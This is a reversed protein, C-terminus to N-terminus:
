QKGAGKGIDRQRELVLGPIGLSTDAGLKRLQEATEPWEQWQTGQKAGEAIRFPTRQQFDQANINAGHEVLFQIVENLGRFAAGHLATFNAENVATVEAGAEVLTKVAEEADPSRDGRPKLPQSTAHGLGAAVMLPTTQDDTTLRHDAGAALLVRIIDSTGQVRDAEFGVNSGGNTSFAALWLPTAGRLDGTGVASLEFAGRKPTALYSQGVASTSIRGNPDAGHALLAKVLTLRRNVDLHTLRRLRNAGRLRLWDRLWIDVNGAATHLAPVGYIKANADAGQELLFLAFADHRSIIALPLAHTGDSGTENVGVGAALLVRGMEIDGNRASHLLPTFGRKSNQHVDAGNEILTQVIDLHRDAVDLHREAVAWMLATYKTERTAANVNAGHALLAKVANVDGTRAATMLPTVGNTQVANANAGAMLLMEVMAVNRNECAQMLPTVGHDDAANANAHARLLLDVTELDDWHAAWLLATTGDPRATNVDVHQRLLARVAARDQDAVANVLRLDPGAATALSAVTLMPLLWLGTLRNVNAGM